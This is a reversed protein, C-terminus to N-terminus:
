EAKRVEFAWSHGWHPAGSTLGPVCLHIYLEALAELNRAFRIPGVWVPKFGAAAIVQEAIDRGEPGGAFMMSHQKGDVLSGDPHEMQKTAITNFAKFVELGPYASLPNMADLVVKGAVGPGLGAVTQGLGAPDHAGPLALLVVASESIAKPVTAVKIGEAVKARAAAPDRSGFVVKVGRKALNGGIAKGVGGTGIIAVSLPM